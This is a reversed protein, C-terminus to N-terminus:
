ASPTSQRVETAPRWQEFTFRSREEAASGAPPLSLTTVDLDVSYRVLAHWEDDLSRRWTLVEGPVWVGEHLV